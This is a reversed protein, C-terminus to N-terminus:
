AKEAYSNGIAKALATVPKVAQEKQENPLSM